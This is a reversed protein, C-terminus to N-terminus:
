VGLPVQLARVELCNLGDPIDYTATPGEEECLFYQVPTHKDALFKDNEM